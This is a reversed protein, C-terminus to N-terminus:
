PCSTASEIVSFFMETDNLRIDAEAGIPITIKDDTHGLDVNYLIPFKYGDFIRRIMKEFTEESQYETEECGVLKGIILGSIKKFIGAQEFHTLIMEIVHHQVFLDEWFLIKNDWHPEYRTGVLTQLLTLNGGLLSGKAHGNKLAIWDSTPEVLGVPDPNMLAKILFKETFPTVGAEGFNYGTPGHFTIQNTLTHIALAIVCPDSLGMFIKPNSKILDYDLFPLVQNAGTGGYACFVAKIDSSFYMHNIDNARNKPSGAVYNQSDFIHEGLEVELGLRMLYEKAKTVTEKSVPSSTSVLGVKDGKSLLNPKIKTTIM